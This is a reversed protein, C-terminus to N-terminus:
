NVNWPTEAKLLKKLKLRARHVRVKVNAESTETVSAIDRYSLDSSIVLSLIDRDQESLQQLARLVKLYGERVMLRNEPDPAEDAPEAPLPAQRGKKRYGDILTNRCIAFLLAPNQREQGYREMYRLFSEQMLDRANEYSGTM